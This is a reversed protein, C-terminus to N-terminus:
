GEGVQRTYSMIEVHILMGEHLARHDVGVKLSRLGDFLKYADSLSGCTAYMYVLTSEHEKKKIIFLKPFMDILTCSRM